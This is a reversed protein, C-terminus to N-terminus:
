VLYHQQRELATCYTISNDGKQFQPLCADRGLVAGMCSTMHELTTNEMTSSQDCGDGSYTPNTM